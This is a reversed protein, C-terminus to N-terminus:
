ICRNRDLVMCTLTNITPLVYAIYDTDAFYGMMIDMMLQFLLISNLMKKQLKSCSIQTRFDSLRCPTFVSLMGGWISRQM